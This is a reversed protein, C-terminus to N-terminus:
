PKYSTNCLRTSQVKPNNLISFDDFVTQSWDTERVKSKCQITKGLKLEDSTIVKISTWKPRVCLQNFHSIWGAEIKCARRVKIFVLTEACSMNYQPVFELLDESNLVGSKCRVSGPFGWFIGLVTRWKLLNRIPLSIYTYTYTCADIWDFTSVYPLILLVSVADVFVSYRSFTHLVRLNLLAFSQNIQARDM